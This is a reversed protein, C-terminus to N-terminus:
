IFDIQKNIEFDELSHIKNDETKVKISFKIQSLFDKKYNILRKIVLGKSFVEKKLSLTSSNYDFVFDNQYTSIKISGLTNDINVIDNLYHQGLYVRSVGVLGACIPALLHLWRNKYALAFSTFLTFAATTHGSPFSNHKHRELGEIPKLNQYIHFNLFYLKKLYFHFLYTLNKM